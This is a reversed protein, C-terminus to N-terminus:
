VNLYKVSLERILYYNLNERRGSSADAHGITFASICCPVPNFHLLLLAGGSGELKFAIDQFLISPASIFNVDM